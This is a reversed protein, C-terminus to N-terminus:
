SLSRSAIVFERLLPDREARAHVLQRARWVRNKVAMVSCRAVQAVERLSRGDIVHLTYAIRYKPEIRDLMAYLQRLAQRADAGREPDESTAAEESASLPAAAPPRRRLHRYVVRAAITDIWTHLTSEGRFAGIAAFAEIFTEQILDDMSRNSGLVRYLTRHVQAREREFFMRQAGPDGAACREALRLDDPSSLPVRPQLWHM